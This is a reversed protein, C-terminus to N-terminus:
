NVNQFQYYMNTGDTRVRLYKLNSESLGALNVYRVGEKVNVFSSSGVSSVVMINKGTEAACKKLM